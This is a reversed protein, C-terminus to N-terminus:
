MKVLDSVNSCQRLMKFKSNDYLKVCSHNKVLDEVIVSRKVANM